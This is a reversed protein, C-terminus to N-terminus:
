SATPTWGASPRRRSLAARGGASRCGSGRTRRAARRPAAVAPSRAGGRPVRPRRAVQDGRRRDRQRRGGARQKLRLEVPDLDLEAAVRDILTELAFAAPPAGPARYAGAGVRNTVVGIATLDHAPWRYPGASLMASIGEVGMEGLGGHDGVIRGRVATLTGDRKAGLELDILQGPAPNAAAFDETRQYTLRVPRKLALAAAGVLPESMLLKGGFAGGIPAPRM